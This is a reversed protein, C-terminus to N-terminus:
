RAGPPVFRSSASSGPSPPLPALPDDSLPEPKESTAPRTRAVSWARLAEIQDRMMRSLPCTAQIASRIYDTSLDASAAFANFMGEKIAEELEAGSFGASAAALASLNFASPNRGKKAIHIRLIEARAALTPLDVFFTEDFRGKRLMEPPLMDVRNATAVVFVPAKREQMWTLLSGVVRATTGGDSRDSSGMGATGKELEDIWLVCPALAEAVKFADRMNRESEGVLGGFVRGMDFRLLPLQWTTAVAKALLSKGCGQIGLLLVGKPADLGFTKAEPTMARARVTLWTKLNELGGVDTLAADPEFFELVNSQRIANGKERVVEAIIADDLKGANAAISKGFAVSAEMVSLGRAAAVVRSPDAPMIVGAQEAVTELVAQLDTEAPLPLEILHLEKQLVAPITPTTTTLIVITGKAPSFRAVERLWAITDTQCERLCPQFDELLYVAPTTGACAFQLVAAAGLLDSDVVDVSALDSDKSRYLGRATNWVFWPVKRTAALGIVLGRAREWEHTVLQILTAGGTALHCLTAFPDPPIATM